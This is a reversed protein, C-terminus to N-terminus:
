LLHIPFWVWAKSHCRSWHGQTVELGFKLTMTNNLHYLISSYNCHRVLLFDYVTQWVASNEIVRFLGLGLNWPWAMRQSQIDGFHSFIRGYNSYFAFLFDYELKWITGSEIVKLSRQGVNWPWSLIWHWIIRSITLRTHDIWHNRKWHGQTVGLSCKLTVIYCKPRCIGEVYQTRLQRAIQKRYSLEQKVIGWEGSWRWM